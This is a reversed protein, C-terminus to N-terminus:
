PNSTAAKDAGRLLGGDEAGCRLRVRHVGHALCERHPRAEVHAGRGSRGGRVRLAYFHRLVVRPAVGPPLPCLHPFPSSLSPITLSMFFDASFLAIKRSLALLPFCISRPPLLLLHTVLRKKARHSERRSWSSPAEMSSDHPPLCPTVPTALPNLAGNPAGRM